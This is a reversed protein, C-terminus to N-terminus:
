GFSDSSYVFIGNGGGGSGSDIPVLTDSARPDRSKAIGMTVIHLLRQPHIAELEVGNGEELWKLEEPPLASQVPAPLASANSPQPERMFVPRNMVQRPMLGLDYITVGRQGAFWREDTLLRRVMQAGMASADHLAYVKLEPNRRLMEMVTDFINQPYHNLSLVACNHEFHFNNAILFQATTAHQCIVVRDFSYATIESSVEAQAKAAAPPPLLKRVPGNSKKWRELWQSFQEFSYRTARPKKPRLWKRVPPLFLAVGAVITLLLLIFIFPTVGSNIALIILLIVPAIILLGGLVNLANSRAKRENFLYFLQRPTFFLTDQASAVSIVRAFFQDTFDIGPTAKPDFVFPHKCSACKGGSQTRAKLNNDTGCKVCKM